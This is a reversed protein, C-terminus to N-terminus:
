GKNSIQWIIRQTNATRLSAPLFKAQLWGTEAHIEQTTADKAPLMMQPGRKPLIRNKFWDIDDRLM